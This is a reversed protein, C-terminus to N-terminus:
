DVKHNHKITSVGGTHRVAGHLDQPVLQMTEGDQHHHWTYGEPRKKYGAIKSAKKEDSERDGTLGEVQVEKKTYPKLDPFGKEDFEVSDPYKKQLDEPLKEVPYKKGAYEGNSPYRGGVKDVTDPYEKLLIHDELNQEPITSGKLSELPEAPTFGPLPKQKDAEPYTEIPPKNNDNIPYGPLNPIKEPISIGELSEILEKAEQRKVFDKSAKEHEVVINYLNLFPIIRDLLRDAIKNGVMNIIKGKTDEVLSNQANSAAKLEKDKNTSKDSEPSVGNKINELLRNHYNHKNSDKLLGELVNEVYKKEEPSIEKSQELMGLEANIKNLVTQVGVMGCQGIRADEYVIKGEKTIYVKFENGEGMATGYKGFLGKNGGVDSGPAVKEGTQAAGGANGANSGKNKYAAAINDPVWIEEGARIELHKINGDADRVVGRAAIYPNKKAFEELQEQTPKDGYIGWVTKGKEVPVKNWKEGEKNGGIKSGTETVCMGGSCVYSDGRGGIIVGGLAEGVADQNLADWVMGPEVKRGEGVYEYKGQEGKTIGEVQSKMRAREEEEIREERKEWSSKFAKTVHEVGARLAGGVIPDVIRSSIIPTAVERTYIGRIPGLSARVLESKLKEHEKKAEERLGAIYECEGVVGKGSKEEVEQYRNCNNWDIDEGGNILLGSGTIEAMIMEADKPFDQMLKEEMMEKTGSVRSAEGNIVEGLKSKLKDVANGAKEYGAGTNALNAITGPIPGFFSAVKGTVGSIVQRATGHSAYDAIIKLAEDVIKKMGKSAQGKLKNNFRDNLLIKTVEESYSSLVANIAGEIDEEISGDNKEMYKKAVYRTTVDVAGM